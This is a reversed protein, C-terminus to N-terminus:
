KHHFVGSIVAYNIIRQNALSLLLSTPPYTVTNDSVQHPHAPARLIPQSFVGPLGDDHFKSELFRLRILVSLHTALQVQTTSIATNNTM